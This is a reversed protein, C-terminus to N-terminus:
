ASPWIWPNYFAFKLFFAVGFTVAIIGIWNFWSGGIVSELDRRKEIRGTEQRLADDTVEDEFPPGLPVAQPIEAGTLVPAHVHQDAPLAAEITVEIRSSSAENMWSHTAPTEPPPTEPQTWTQKSPESVQPGVPGPPSPESINLAPAEVQSTPPHTEGREGPRPDHLPPQQLVVGLNQEIIHLRATNTGLVRELLDLREVLQKLIERSPLDEAM